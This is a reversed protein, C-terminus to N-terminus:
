YGRQLDVENPLRRGEQWARLNEFCIDLSRPYYTQPDAASMHPMM